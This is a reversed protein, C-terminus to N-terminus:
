AGGGRLYPTGGAGRVAGEGGGRGAAPRPAGEPDRGHAKRAEPGPPSLEAQHPLAGRVLRRARLEAGEREARRPDAGRVGRHGRARGPPPGGGLPDPAAPADEAEPGPPDFPG